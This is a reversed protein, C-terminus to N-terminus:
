TSPPPASSPGTNPSRTSSRCSTITTPVVAVSGPAAVVPWTRKPSSGGADGALGTPLGGTGDAYEKRIEEVLADGQYLATTKTYQQANLSVELSVSTGGAFGVTSVCWLTGEGDDVAPSVYYATSLMPPTAGFRCKLNSGNGLNAGVITVNTKGHLPGSQPSIEAIMPAAYYQFPKVNTYQQGNTSM